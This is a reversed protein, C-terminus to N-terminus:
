RAGRQGPIGRTRPRVSGKGGESEVEGLGARGAEGRARRGPGKPLRHRGARSSIMCTHGDGEGDVGRTGEGEKEKGNEWISSRM